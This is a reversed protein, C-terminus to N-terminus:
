DSRKQKEDLRMILQHTKFNQHFMWGRHNSVLLNGATIILRLCVPLSVFERVHHRSIRLARQRGARGRPGQLGRFSTGDTTSEVSSLALDDRCEDFATAPIFVSREAYWQPASNQNYAMKNKSARRSFRKSSARSLRTHGIAAEVKMVPDAIPTASGTIGSNQASRPMDVASNPSTPLTKPPARKSLLKGSATAASCTPRRVKRVQPGASVATDMTPVPKLPLKPTNSPHRTRVPSPPDACIVPACSYRASM